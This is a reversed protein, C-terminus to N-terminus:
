YFNRRQRINKTMVAWPFKNTKKTTAPPVPVIPSEGTLYEYWSEAQTGRSPQNPEAPREYNTIFVMALYYPSEESKIFEKFTMPYTRTAIWQLNNEVEYIIRALAVDMESPDTYGNEACWNTYKTYPTWQVLSYGHGESEGGVRDSQWRGSNIASESQMNGLMGAIANATWGQALLYSYIYKANVKMQDYTLTNSSDYTNGWYTGYIGQRQILAM